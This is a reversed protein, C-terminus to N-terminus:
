IASSASEEWEPPFYKDRKLDLTENQEPLPDPIWNVGYAAMAPALEETPIFGSSAGCYGQTSDTFNSVGIIANLFDVLNTALTGGHFYTKKGDCDEKVLYDVNLEFTGTEVNVEGSYSEVWLYYGFEKLLDAKMEELSYDSDSLIKLNSVRPEPPITEYRILYHDLMAAHFQSALAHGNNPMQLRFASNRHLLYNELKGRDILCIDRAPSGEMDYRYSAIMEEDRPCDWIQLHNLIEMFGEQIINEGMKGAFVTSIEEAIYKGSLMHGALAEHFLTGVASPALLLPYLGSKLQQRDISSITAELKQVVSDQLYDSLQEYNKCIYGLTSDYLRKEGNMFAPTIKSSFTDRYDLVRNGKSDVVIWIERQASLQAEISAVHERAYYERSLKVLLESLPEPMEPLPSLIFDEDAMHHVEDAVEQFNKSDKVKSSYFKELLLDIAIALITSGFSLIGESSCLVNEKLSVPFSVEKKNNTFFLTLLLAPHDKLSSVPIQIGNSCKLTFSEKQLYTLRIGSIQHDVPKGYPDEKTITLSMARKVLQEMAQVIPLYTISPQM